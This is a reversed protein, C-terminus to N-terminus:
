RGKLTPSAGLVTRAGVKPVVPKACTVTVHHFIFADCCFKCFWIYNLYHSSAFISHFPCMVFLCCLCYFQLRDTEDENSTTLISSTCPHINSGHQLSTSKSHIAGMICAIMYVFMFTHFISVFPSFLIVFWIQVFIYILCKRFVFLHMPSLKLM